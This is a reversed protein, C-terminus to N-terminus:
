ESGLVVLADAAATGDRSVFIPNVDVERVEPHETALRALGKVTALLGSPDGGTRALLRGVACEDLMEGLDEKSPPVLRVSVDKVVETLTGGVGLLVVPGFVPDHRMGCIVEIGSATAEVLVGRAPAGIEAARAVLRGFTERVADAGAVGVAVIGAASKHAVGPADAKLVVPYGLREALAVGEDATAAVDGEVLPVGYAALIRRSSAESLVPGPEDISLSPADGAPVETPTRRPWSQWWATRRLAVLSPRLGHLLPIGAARLDERVSAHAPGMGHLTFYVGFKGTRKVAEILSHAGAAGLDIEHDGMWSTIKDLAVAVIDVDEDAMSQLIEDYLPPFDADVGWPDVPNGIYSFHPWRAQLRAKMTDSPAPLEFGLARAHDAVLQAEGGSDGVAILRRGEPMRGHAFVEAVEILEDLDDLGIAGLQHLLGTVVEDAGALTGSHAAIAAAAEASRGAQLVALPKGAERMAKAGRVFAEPDRFGEIFLCVGGTAPDTAFYELYEGSSTAVETGSSVLASFGVRPGMNVMAEIVSGSQSVIAVSGSLLHDPITGIYLAGRGPAIVGMCNPGAVAMGFEPAVEAIEAQAVRAAEGTESFGGGPVIAARVGRAGASRLVGPVLDIRVAAAVAEPTEPVHDISAYCPLGLVEDYRPNVPYIPGEFGLAQLNEIVVRGVYSTPSAGVIAVSRPTLLCDIASRAGPM